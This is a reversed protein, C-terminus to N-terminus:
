GIVEGNSGNGFGFQELGHSIRCLGVWGGGQGGAEEGGGMVSAERVDSVPGLGQPCSGPFSSTGELYLDLNRVDAM